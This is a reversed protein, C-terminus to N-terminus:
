KIWIRWPPSISKENEKSRDQWSKALCEDFRVIKGERFYEGIQESAQSHGLLAARMYLSFALYESGECNEYDILVALDFVAEAINSNELSRTLDDSINKDIPFNHQGSNYCVSLAYTARIDGSVHAKRLFAAIKETDPEDQLAENLARRYYKSKLTKKLQL